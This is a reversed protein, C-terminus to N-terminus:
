WGGRYACKGGPWPAGHGRCMKQVIGGNVGRRDEKMAGNWVGILGAVRKSCEGGRRREGEESWTTEGRSSVWTAICYSVSPRLSFPSPFSYSTLTSSHYVVVAIYHQPTSFYHLLPEKTDYCRMQPKCEPIPEEQVARGEKMQEIWAAIM